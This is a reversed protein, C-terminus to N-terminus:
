VLFYYHLHVADSRPHNTLLIMYMIFLLMSLATMHELPPTVPQKHEVPLVATGIHAKGLWGESGPMENLLMASFVPQLYLHSQGHSTWGWM